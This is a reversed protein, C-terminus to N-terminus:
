NDNPQSSRSAVVHDIIGFAQASIGDMFKDRELAQEFRNCRDMHSEGERGCHKAYIEILRKKLRLIENARIAMDSAQGSSGGSPQHIMITSNPLAKRFGKAGAGLLISGMSCAQGICITHVSSRIYQMTDYIALGATVSGGPSNIYLEIPDPSEAELYLLQAVILNADADNIEGGVFIVRERLLRSFIDFAREGGRGEREIVMPVLGSGRLQNFNSLMRRSQPALSSPRRTNYPSGHCRIISSKMFGNLHNSMRVSAM